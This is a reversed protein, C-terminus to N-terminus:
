LISALSKVILAILAAVATGALATVVWDEPGDGIFRDRRLPPAWTDDKVYGCEPCLGRVTNTV